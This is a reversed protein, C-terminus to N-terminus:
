VIPGFPALGETAKPLANVIFSIDMDPFLKPSLNKYLKLEVVPFRNHFYLIVLIEGISPCDFAGFDEGETDDSPFTHKPISPFPGKQGAPAYM